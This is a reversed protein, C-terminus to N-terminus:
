VFHSYRQGFAPMSSGTHLGFTLNVSTRSSRSLAMHSLQTLFMQALADLMRVQFM